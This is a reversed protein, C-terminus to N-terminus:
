KQCLNDANFVCEFVCPQITPMNPHTKRKENMFDAAIKDIDAIDKKKQSLTFECVESYIRSCEDIYEDVAEKGMAISGLPYYEHAAFINKPPQSKLRQLTKKYENPQGVGCGYKSIGWLQLCDGTILSGTRKDLLAGSDASHGPLSLFCIDPMIERNNTLLIGGFKECFGKSFSLCKFPPIVKILTPTGGAHDGHFHTIFLYKVDAKIEKLAPLLIDTVDSEYTGCDVLIDGEPTRVLFSSTTINEFPIDLKYINETILKFM